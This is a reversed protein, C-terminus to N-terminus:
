IGCRNAPNRSKGPNPHIIGLHYRQLNFAM